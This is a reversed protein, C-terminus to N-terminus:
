VYVDGANSQYHEWKTAINVYLGTYMSQQKPIFWAVTQMQVSPGVEMDTSWNKNKDNGSTFNSFGCPRAKQL